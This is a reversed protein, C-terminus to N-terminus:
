DRAIAFEIGYPMEFGTGPARPEPGPLLVSLLHPNAKDALKAYAPTKVFARPKESPLLGSTRSPQVSGTVYHYGRPIKIQFSFGPGLFDQRLHLAPKVALGRPDTPPLLRVIVADCTLYPEGFVASLSLYKIVSVKQTGEPTPPFTLTESSATMQPRWEPEVLGQQATLRYTVRGPRASDAKSEIEVQWSAASGAAQATQSVGTTMLASILTTMLASLAIWARQSVIQRVM